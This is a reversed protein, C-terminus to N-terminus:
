LLFFDTQENKSNYYSNKMVIVYMKKLFLGEMSVTYSILQYYQSLIHIIQLNKKRLIGHICPFVILQNQDWKWIM